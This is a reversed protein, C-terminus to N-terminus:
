SGNNNCVCSRCTSTVTDACQCLQFIEHNQSRLLSLNVWPSVCTGALDPPVRGRTLECSPPVQAHVSNRMYVCMCGPNQPFGPHVPCFSAPTHHNPSFVLDFWLLCGGKLGPVAWTKSGYVQLFGRCQPSLLENTYDCFGWFPLHYKM